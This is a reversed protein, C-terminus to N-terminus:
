VVSKRDPEEQYSYRQQSWPDGLNHYGREEWFGRRDATLYEIARVWKPGKWAYLHPVVLRLPFGNLTPLPRGNMAWALMVEGDQAHDVDLAKAFAPPGVVVPKDLGAFKVQVAGAKVGARALVTKLPVGTWRANGMLGNGAQGGGVRPVSFGRSNGSCQNVAVIEAAPLQKLDDLSLSLETTVLGGVQLRFTEADVMPPAGALHYRVFFADAPTIPGEDFVAFPTELQPPRTTLRILPRKGPYRVLPRDGNGFPLTVSEARALAPTALMGLALSRRDIM